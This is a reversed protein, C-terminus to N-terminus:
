SIVCNDTYKGAHVKLHIVLSSAQRFSKDCMECQFPLDKVKKRIVAPEEVSSVEYQPVNEEQKIAIQKTVGEQRSTINTINSLLNDKDFNRRDVRHSWLKPRQQNFTNLRRIHINPNTLLRKDTTKVEQRPPQPKSMQNVKGSAVQLLANLKQSQATTKTTSHRKPPNQFKMFKDNTIPELKVFSQHKKVYTKINNSVSITSESIEDVLERDSTDVEQKLIIPNGDGDEDFNRLFIIEVPDNPSCSQSNESNDSFTPNEGSTAIECEVVCFDDDMVVYDENEIKEVYIIEGNENEQVEVCIIESNDMKIEDM